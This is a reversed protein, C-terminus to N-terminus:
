GRAEPDIGLAQEVSDMKADDRGSRIGELLSRAAERAEPLSAPEDIFAELWPEVQERVAPTTARMQGMVAVTKMAFSDQPMFLDARDSGDGDPRLSLQLRECVVEREATSAEDYARMLALNSREDALIGLSHVIACRVPMSATPLRQELIEVVSRGGRQDRHQALAWAAMRQAPEEARHLIRELLPVSSMVQVSGLAYFLRLDIAQGAELQAELEAQIEPGLSRNQLRGLAILAERRVAPDDGQAARVLPVFLPRRSPLDGFRGLAWAAWAAPEGGGALARKLAPLVAPDRRISLEEIAAIKQATDGQHLASVHKGVRRYYPDFDRNVLNFLLYTLGACVLLLLPFSTTSRQMSVALEDVGEDRKAYRASRGQLHTRRFAGKFVLEDVLLADMFAVLLLVAFYGFRLATEVAASDPVNRVIRAVWIAVLFGAMNAIVVLSWLKAWAPSRGIRRNPRGPPSPHPTDDSMFTPLVARVLVVALPRPERWRGIKRRSSSAHRQAVSKKTM